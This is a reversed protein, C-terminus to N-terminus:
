LIALFDLVRQLMVRAAAADYDDVEDDAFLHGAYPYTYVDVRTDAGRKRM